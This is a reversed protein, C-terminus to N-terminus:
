DFAERSQPGRGGLHIHYGASTAGPSAPAEKKELWCIELVPKFSQM